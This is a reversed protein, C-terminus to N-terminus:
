VTERLCFGQGGRLLTKCNKISGLVSNISSDEMITIRSEWFGEFRVSVKLKVVEWAKGLNEGIVKLM